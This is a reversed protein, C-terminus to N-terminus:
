AVKSVPAASFLEIEGLGDAADSGITPQDGKLRQALEALTVNECAREIDVTWGDASSRGIGNLFQAIGEISQRLRDLKQLEYLSSSSGFAGAVILNGILVEVDSVVNSLEFMEVAARDLLEPVPTVQVANAARRAHQMPM